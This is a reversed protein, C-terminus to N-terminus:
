ADKVGAATLTAGIEDIVAKEGCICIGAAHDCVQGMDEVYTKLLSKAEKLSVLARHYLEPSVGLSDSLAVLQIGQRVVASKKRGTAAAINQLQYITAAGLSFSETDRRKAM